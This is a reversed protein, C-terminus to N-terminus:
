AEVVIFHGGPDAINLRREQFLGTNAELQQLVANYNEAVKKLLFYDAQEAWMRGAAEGEVSEAPHDICHFGVVAGDVLIDKAVSETERCVVVTTFRAM